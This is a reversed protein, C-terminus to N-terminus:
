LPGLFADTWSCLRWNRCSFSAVFGEGHVSNKSTQAIHVSREPILCCTVAHALCYSGHLALHVLLRVMLDDEPPAFLLIAGIVIAATMCLAIGVRHLKTYRKGLGKCHLGATGYWKHRPTTLRSSAGGQPIPVHRWSSSPVPREQVPVSVEVVADLHPPQVVPRVVPRVVRHPSSPSSTSLPTAPSPTSTPLSPTPALATSTSLSPTPPSAPLRPTPLHFERPTRLKRASLCVPGGDGQAAISSLVSGFAAAARPDDWGGHRREFEKKAAIVAKRDVLGWVRLQGELLADEMGRLAHIATEYTTALRQLQNRHALFRRFAGGVHPALQRTAMCLLSLLPVPLLFSSTGCLVFFHCRLSWCAVLFCASHCPSCRLASKPSLPCSPSLPCRTRPDRRGRFVDPHLVSERFESFSRSSSWSALM